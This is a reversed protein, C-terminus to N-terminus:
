VIFRRLSSLRAEVAAGVNFLGAHISDSEMGLVVRSRGALYILDTDLGYKKLLGRDNTVWLPATAASIASYDIYIKGASLPSDQHALLILLTILCSLFYPRARKM